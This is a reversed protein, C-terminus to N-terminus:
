DAKPSQTFCSKWKRDAARWKGAGIGHHGVVDDESADVHDLEGLDGLAGRGEDFSEAPQGDDMNSMEISITARKM